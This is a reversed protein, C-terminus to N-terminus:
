LQREGREDEVAEVFGLRLISVEKVKVVDMIVVAIAQQLWWRLLLSGKRLLVRVVSWGNENGEIRLRRM